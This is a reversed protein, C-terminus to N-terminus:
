QRGPEVGDLLVGKLVGGGLTVGQSLEHLSQAPFGRRGVLGHLVADVELIQHRGNDGSLAIGVVAPVAGGGLDGGDDAPADQLVPGPFLNAYAAQRENEVPPQIRKESPADIVDLEGLAIVAAFVEVAGLVGSIQLQHRLRLM